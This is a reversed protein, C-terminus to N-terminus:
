KTEVESEWEFTYNWLWKIAELMLKKTISNHTPMQMVEYIAAAKEEDTFKESNIQEFIAVAIKINM